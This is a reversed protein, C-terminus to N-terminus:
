GVILALSLRMAPASSNTSVSGVGDRLSIRSRRLRPSIVAPSAIASSSLFDHPRRKEGDHMDQRILHAAANTQPDGQEQDPQEEQRKEEDQQRNIEDDARHDVDIREFRQAREDGNEAVEGARMHLDFTRLGGDEDMDISFALVMLSFRRCIRSISDCPFIVAASASLNIAASSRSGEAAPDDPSARRLSGSLYRRTTTSATSSCSPGVLTFTRTGM